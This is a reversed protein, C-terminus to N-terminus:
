RTNQLNLGANIQSAKGHTASLGARQADGRAIQGDQFGHGLASAQGEKLNLVRADHKSDSRAIRDLLNGSAQPTVAGGDPSKAAAVLLVPQV